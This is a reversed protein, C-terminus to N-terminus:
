VGPIVDFSIGLGLMLSFLARNGVSVEHPNHSDSATSPRAETKVLSQATVHAPVGAVALLAPLAIALRRSQMGKSLAAFPPAKALTPAIPDPAPNSAQTRNREITGLQEELQITRDCSLQEKRWITREQDATRHAGEFRAFRRFDYDERPPQPTQRLSLEKPPHTPPAAKPPPRLAATPPM